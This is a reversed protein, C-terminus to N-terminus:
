LLRDLGADHARVRQAPDIPDTEYEGASRPAEDHSAPQSATGRQTHAHADGQAQAQHQSHHGVNVDLSNFAHVLESHLHPLAATVADRAAGDACAVTVTLAGDQVSATVRVAGLEAPHLQVELEHTGTRARLKALTNVLNPQAASIHAQQAPAATPAAPATAATPASVSATPASGTVADAATATAADAAATTAGDTPVSATDPTAVPHPFLASHENAHASARAIAHANPRLGDGDADFKPGRPHDPASPGDVPKNSPHDAHAQDSRGHVAPAAAAFGPGAATAASPDALATLPDTAATAETTGRPDATAPTTTDTTALAAGQDTVLLTGTADVASGVAGTAAADAPPTVDPPTVPPTVLARAPANAVAALAVASASAPLEPTAAHTGNSRPGRPGHGASGPAGGAAPVDGDTASSDTLAGHLADAFKSDDGTPSSDAGTVPLASMGACAAAAAATTIMTTM